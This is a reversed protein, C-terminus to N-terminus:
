STKEEIQVGADKGRGRESDAALADTESVSQAAEKRVRILRAHPVNRGM